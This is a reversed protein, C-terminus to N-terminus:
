VQYVNSIQKEVYLKNLYDATGIYEKFCKNKYVDAQIALVLGNSHIDHGYRNPQNEIEETDNIFLHEILDKPTIGFMSFGSLIIFALLIYAQVKFKWNDFHKKNEEQKESKYEKAYRSHQEDLVEARYIKKHLDNLGNFWQVFSKYETLVAEAQGIKEIRGFNMWIVRDCLEEVQTLSHSIFIITKGEKKLCNIKRVCKQYFAQDGVSLAEDIILIDPNIYASVAFSLRARMGSSYRKVPQHIYEGLDAFEIIKEKLSDAEAKDYGYILCRVEINELGTLQNNLGTSNSILSTKGNIEVMGSTPAIIEALLNRLTSKGSGNLGIIGIIEGELIAFSLDKVQYFYPKNKDNLSFIKFIRDSRKSSLNLRKTVQFFLIKPRM